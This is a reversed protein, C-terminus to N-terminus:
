SRSPAAPVGPCLHIAHHPTPGMNWQESRLCTSPDVAKGKLVPSPCKLGGPCVGGLDVPVPHGWVKPGMHLQPALSGWYPSVPGRRGMAPQALCATAPTQAASRLLMRQGGQIRRPRAPDSGARPATPVLVGAAGESPKHRRTRKPNRSHESLKM